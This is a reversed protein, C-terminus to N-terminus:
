EDDNGANGRLGQTVLGTASLVLLTSLVTGGLIPWWAQQLKDLHALLGVGSPVFFLGLYGILFGSTREVRELKVWGFLLACFFLVMGLVSGPVPM